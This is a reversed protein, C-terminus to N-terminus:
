SKTENYQSEIYARITTLAVKWKINFEKKDIMFSNLLEDGDIQLVLDYYENDANKYVSFNIYCGSGNTANFMQINQNISCLLVNLGYIRLDEFMKNLDM